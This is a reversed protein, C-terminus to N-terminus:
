VRLSPERRRGGLLRPHHQDPQRLCTPSVRFGLICARLSPERRREGLLRPHHQDPQHLRTASVRFGLICARLSPERRRGGLLRPHHQDPQHLRTASVRFGLICVRLSPERRRGGLLRPHHQDPQQLCAPAREARGLRQKRGVRGAAPWDVPKAASGPDGAALLRHRRGLLAAAAGFDASGPYPKPIPNRTSLAVLSSHFM